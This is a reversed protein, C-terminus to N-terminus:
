PTRRRARVPTLSRGCRTAAPLPGTGLAGHDGPPELHQDPRHRLGAGRLVRRRVGAAGGGRRGGPRAVRRDPHGSRHPGARRARSYVTAERWAPLMYLREESEGAARLDKHHMDICYACGNIQSARLKVLEFVTHDLPGDAVAKDFALVARYGDPFAKMLDVPPRHTTTM